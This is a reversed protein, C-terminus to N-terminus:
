QNQLTELFAQTEPTPTFTAGDFLWHLEHRIAPKGGLQMIGREGNWVGCQVSSIETERLSVIIDLLGDEDLDAVTMEFDDLLNFIENPSLDECFPSAYSRKYTSFLVTQIPERSFDLLWFEYDPYYEIDISNDYSYAAFRSECLLMERKNTVFVKRCNNGTRFYLPEDGNVGVQEWSGDVFRFLESTYCPGECPIGSLMVAEKVKPSTFSGYLIDNGPFSCALSDAYLMCAARQFMKATEDDVRTFQAYETDGDAAHALVALCLFFLILGKM